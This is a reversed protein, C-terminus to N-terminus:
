WMWLDGRKSKKQAEKRSRGVEGDMWGTNESDLLEALSSSQMEDGDLDKM